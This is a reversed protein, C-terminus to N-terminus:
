IYIYINVMNITKQQEKKQLPSDEAQVIIAFHMLGLTVSVIM